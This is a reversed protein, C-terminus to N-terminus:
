TGLIERFYSNLLRNEPDFAKRMDALIQLREGIAERVEEGSLGFTQILYRCGGVNLNSWFEGYRGSKAESGRSRNHLRAKIGGRLDLRRSGRARLARV